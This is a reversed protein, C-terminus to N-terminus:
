SVTFKKQSLYPVMVADLDEVKVYDIDIQSWYNSTNTHCSNGFSLYRVKRTTLVVDDKLFGDVYFLYPFSNGYPSRIIMSGNEVSVSGGSPYITYHALDNVSDFADNVVFSVCSKSM